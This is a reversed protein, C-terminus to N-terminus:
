YHHFLVRAVLREAEREDAIRRHRSVASAVAAREAGYEGAAHARVTVVALPRPARTSIAACVSGPPTRSVSCSSATGRSQLTAGAEGGWADASWGGAPHLYCQLRVAHQKEVLTAGAAARGGSGLVEPRNPRRGLLGLVQCVKALIGDNLIALEHAGLDGLALLEREQALGETAEADEGVKGLEGRRDLVSEERAAEGGDSLGDVIDISGSELAHLLAVGAEVTAVWRVDLHHARGALSGRPPVRVARRNRWSPRRMPDSDPNSDRCSRRSSDLAGPAGSPSSGSSKRTPTSFAWDAKSVLGIYQIKCSDM